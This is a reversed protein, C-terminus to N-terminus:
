KRAPLEIASEMSWPRVRLAIGWTRRQGPPLRADLEAYEHFEDVLRALKRQLLSASAPSLERSEFAFWGGVTDFRPALFDEVARRGHRRRIPGDARLRADRPM